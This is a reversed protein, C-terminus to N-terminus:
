CGNEGRVTSVKISRHSGTDGPAPGVMNGTCTATSWAGIPPIPSMGRWGTLEDEAQSSMGPQEQPPQCGDPLTSTGPCCEQMKM